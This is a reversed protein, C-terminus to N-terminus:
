EVGGSGALPFRAALLPMTERAGSLARGNAACKGLDPFIGQRWCCVKGWLSFASGM